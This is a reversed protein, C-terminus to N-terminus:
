SVSALEITYPGTGTYGLVYRYPLRGYGAKWGTAGFSSGWSNRILLAGDGSGDADDEYGVLCLAHASGNPLDFPTPATLTGSSYVAPDSWWSFTVVSGVVPQGAALAIKVALLDGNRLRTARAKVTQMPMLVPPPAHDDPCPDLRPDYSWAPEHVLGFPLEASATGILTGCLAKHPPVDRQKCAWYLHEASFYDDSEQRQEIYEAAAAVSFAVCTFRDKGQDRVAKFGSSLDVKSPLSATQPFPVPTGGIGKAAAGPAAGAVPLPLPTPGQGAPILAGFATHPAKGAVPLVNSLRTLTSPTFRVSLFEELPRRHREEMVRPVLDEMRTIGLSVLRRVVDRNKLEPVDVASLLTM